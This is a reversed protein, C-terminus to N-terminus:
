KALAHIAAIPIRKVRGITVFPVEGTLLLEYMKARSIALMVAAESPRVFLPRIPRSQTNTAGASEPSIKFTDDLVTDM